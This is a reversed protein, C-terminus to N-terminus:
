TLPKSMFFLLNQPFHEYFFLWQAALMLMDNYWGSVHKIKTAFSGGMM